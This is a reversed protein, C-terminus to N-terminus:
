KGINERQKEKRGNSGVEKLGFIRRQIVCQGYTNKGVYKSV